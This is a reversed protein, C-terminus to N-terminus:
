IIIPVFHFEILSVEIAKTNSLDSYQQADGIVLHCCDVQTYEISHFATSSYGANHLQLKRFPCTAVWLSWYSWQM